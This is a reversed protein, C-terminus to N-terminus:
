IEKTNNISEINNKLESINSRLVKSLKIATSVDLSIIAPYYEGSNISITIEDKANIFCELENEQTNTKETGLFSLKINAM